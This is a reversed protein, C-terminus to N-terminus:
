ASPANKDRAGIGFDVLVCNVIHHRLFQGLDFERDVAVASAAAAGVALGESLARLMACHGTSLPEVAIGKADRRLLLCVGGTGLDVAPEEQYEPQNVAWIRHVPYDSVLLRCAPHLDFHLAEYDGEAVAALREIALPAHDASHFSEHWLWELRAVDALYVLARAPAFGALFDGFQGGYCHVDNSVSPYDRIYAHAALRFFAEGVLREVVPYVARLAERYNHFINNRYIDFRDEPAMGNARVLALVPGDEASFIGDRFSAQFERLSPM